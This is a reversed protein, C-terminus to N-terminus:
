GICVSSPCSGSFEPKARLMKKPIDVYLVQKQKSGYRYITIGKCKLEHALLYVKKVDNVAASRPLNITKSVANDVHKQFAAQMKVHWEPKIDLATVFLKKIEKPIEKINQISGSKAIKRIMEESYFGQKKALEEFLPNVELLKTGELIDRYFAVAFLPEIGSSTGAIISITGTPAITTVTANRMHQYKRKLRSEEFNPFNGKKGALKMSEEKAAEQIFNMVQKATKLAQESDYPIGLKILMEAFGMIGLGIKRNAKTMEETEKLPFKNKDIVNDLFNVALSVLRKLKNWKIKKNETLKSLNISGLNCSEYPLLTVEGCPNTATIKGIKPTPNKRNIEDIFVLGPDAKKWANKVILNFVDGAKLEGQKKRTRPNILDYKRNKKVAEMFEDTAAVSINFNQLQKEDNKANIFELIDPHNYDLIGMNAGRRKGGQKMIETTKDFVTMFSIPGSAVGKTSGVIDGKPRIKSFNFGTGGGSQNILAQAKLTDFIGEISDPVDLVFCASLQNIKTGANMLTPSNPLFELNSMIKYFDREQKKSNAIAKAVRKFMQVPTETINGNEDRLLYRKKLVVISNATLKLEDKIGLKKKIERIRARKKRHLSYVKQVEPYPALNEVVIDQITEIPVRKKFRKRIQKVAAKTIKEAAKKDPYNIANVAKLIANQIKEKRFSVLSNDRKIVKLGSSDKKRFGFKRLVKDSLKLSM